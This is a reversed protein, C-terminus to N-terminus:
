VSGVRATARRTVSTPRTVLVVVVIAVTVLAALLGIVTSGSGISSLITTDSLPSTHDGFIAGALVAGFAPIVFSSNM